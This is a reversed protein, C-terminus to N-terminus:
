LLLSLLNFHRSIYRARAKEVSLLALEARVKEMNSYFVFEVVTKKHDVSKYVMFHRLLKNLVQCHFCDGAARPKVELKIM